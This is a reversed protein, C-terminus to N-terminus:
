SVEEYTYKICTIIKQYLNTEEGKEATNM